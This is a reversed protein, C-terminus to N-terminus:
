INLKLLTECDTVNVGKLKEETEWLINYQKNLIKLRNENEAVCM